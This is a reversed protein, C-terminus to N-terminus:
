VADKLFRVRDATEQGPVHVISGPLAAMYALHAPWVCARYYEEATAWEKPARATFTLPYLELARM